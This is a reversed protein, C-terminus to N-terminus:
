SLAEITEEGRLFEVAGISLGVNDTICSEALRKQLTDELKSCFCEVSKTNETTYAVTFEDGGYRGFSASYATCVERLSDAIVHLVRDGEDHGYM